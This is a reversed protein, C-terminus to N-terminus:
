HTHGTSSGCFICPQRNVRDLKPCALRDAGRMCLLVHAASLMGAPPGFFYIWVDNWVHAPIASALTRAPNMIMGSVPAWLSIYTAVIIGAIVGTWRTWRSNSVALVITM